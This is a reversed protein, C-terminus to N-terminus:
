ANALERLQKRARRNPRSTKSSELWTTQNELAYGEVRQAAVSGIGAASEKTKNRSAQKPARAQRSTQSGRAQRGAGRGSTRGGARRARGRSGVLILHADVTKALEFADVNLRGADIVVPGVKSLTRVMPAVAGAPPPMCTKAPLVALVGPPIRATVIDDEVTAEDWALITPQKSKQTTFDPDTALAFRITVDDVLDLVFANAYDARVLEKLMWLAASTTGVGGAVGTFVYVGHSSRRLASEVIRLLLQEEGPIRVDVGLRVLRTGLAQLRALEEAAGAEGEDVILVDPVLGGLTSAEAVLADAASADRTAGEGVLANPVLAAGTLVDRTSGDGTHGIHSPSSACTEDTLVEVTGARDTSSSPAILTLIDSM